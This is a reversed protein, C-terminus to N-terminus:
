KASATSEDSLLADNTQTEQVPLHFYEIIFNALDNVNDPSFCPIGWDLRADSVVAILNKDGKCAPTKGIEPRFVEIKPHNHRKYGEVIVIDINEMLRVLDEPAHDHDVDKVMGIQFPSSIVTTTAGAKKHKWSDKGPRDIEFGHIDHKITGVRFGHAIFTEILKVVVETKGSDSFGVIFVMTPENNTQNTM